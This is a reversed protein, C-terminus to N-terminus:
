LAMLAGVPRLAIRSRAETAPVGKIFRWLMFWAEGLQPLFALQIAIATYAPLLLWVVTVVARRNNACPRISSDRARSNSISM